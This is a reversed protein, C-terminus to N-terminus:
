GFSGAPVQQNQEHLVLPPVRMSSARRGDSLGFVWESRPDRGNINTRFQEGRNVRENEGTLPRISAEPSRRITTQIEIEVTELRSNEVLRTVMNKQHELERTEAEENRRHVTVLDHM